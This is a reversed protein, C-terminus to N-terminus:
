FPFASRTDTWPESEASITSNFPSVRDEARWIPTQCDHESVFRVSGDLYHTNTAVDLCWISFRFRRSRTPTGHGRRRNLRFRATLRSLLATREDFKHKATTNQCQDSTETLVKHTPQSMFAHYCFPCTSIPFRRSRQKAQYPSGFTGVHDVARRIQTQRDHESVLRVNGDLSQSNTSVCLCSSSVYM